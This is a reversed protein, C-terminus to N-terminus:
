LNSPPPKVAVFVIYEVGSQLYIAVVIGDDSSIRAL